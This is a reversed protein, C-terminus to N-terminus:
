LLKPRRLRLCIEKVMTLVKLHSGRGELRLTSTILWTSLASRLLTWQKRRKKIHLVFISVRVTKMMYSRPWLSFSRPFSIIIWKLHWWEKKSLLLMEDRKSSLKLLRQKRRDLSDWLIKPSNLNSWWRSSITTRSLMLTKRLSRSLGSQKKSSPWSKVLRRSLSSKVGGIGRYYKLHKVSLLLKRRSKTLPTFGRRRTKKETLLSRWSAKLRTM